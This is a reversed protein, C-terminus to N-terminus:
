LAKHKKHDMLGVFEIIQKAIDKGTATELGRFGPSYNVEIIKPDGGRAVIMDVGAIDLGCADAAQVALKGWAPPPDLVKAQGSQHINARFDSQPPELTMAGAVRSSIVLLRVDKRGKPPIFAQVVLGKRANLHENLFGDADERCDAKIVGDGGMGDVQKVVVPYGGLADVAKPFQSKATIFCSSPVPIGAAVLRQLTIYQSRAITVGKLGNVLHIGMQAFQRLLALGYEGMPSGQRPLIIDPAAEMDAMSFDFARDILTATVKYPNILLIEHGQAMAAERLRRNPHFGFDNITLLGIKM